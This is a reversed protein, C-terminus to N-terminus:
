CMFSMNNKIVDSPLPLLAPSKCLALRARVRKEYAKGTSPGGSSENFADATERGGDPKPASPTGSGGIAAIAPGPCCCMSEKVSLIAMRQDQLFEIPSYIVM